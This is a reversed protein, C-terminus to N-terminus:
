AAIAEARLKVAPPNIGKRPARAGVKPSFAHLMTAKVTAPNTRVPMRLALVAPEFSKIGVIRTIMPPQKPMSMVAAIPFIAWIEPIYSSYFINYKKSGKVLVVPGLNDRVDNEVVPARVGHSQRGIVRM